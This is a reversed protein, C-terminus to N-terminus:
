INHTIRPQGRPARSPPPGVPMVALLDPNYKCCEAYIRQKLAEKTAVFNDFDWSFPEPEPLHLFSERLYAIYRHEVAQAATMRQVPDFTLLEKVFDLCSESAGPLRQELSDSPQQLPWEPLGLSDIFRMVSDRVGGHGDSPLWALDREREFGLVNAIRRLMDHHNDGPFLPKRALLEVHMCGVSWLDVAECYGADAIDILLL